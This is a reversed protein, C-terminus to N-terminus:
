PAPAPEPQHRVVTRTLALSLLALLRCLSPNVFCAEAEASPARGPGQARAWLAAGMRLLESCAVAAPWQQEDAVGAVERLLVLLSAPKLSDYAPVAGPAALSVEAKSVLPEWLANLAAQIAELWGAADKDDLSAAWAAGNDPMGKAVLTLVSAPGSKGASQLTKAAFAATDQSESAPPLARPTVDTARWGPPTAPVELAELKSNAQPKGGVNISTTDGADVEGESHLVASKSSGCGM